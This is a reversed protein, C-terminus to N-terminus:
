RTTAVSRLSQATLEALLRNGADNNHRNIYYRAIGGDRVAAAMEERTDLTQLGSGKACDLVRAIIEAEFRLTSARQWAHPTYKAVVLVSIGHRDKLQRLRDMLLCSVTLGQDHVQVVEMPRGRLWWEVGLRRMTVDVLFSHGLLWRAPDLPQMAATPPPVPVNRLVLEEGRLDFYPKDIGWLVRMETRRVDDAIFSVILDSPRFSPVLKEARLVIQDIGYGLVGGNLVPRNLLAELHAPFTEGDAVEEGMAYSNGVVLLPRVDASPRPADSGHMRLGNEDFSLLARGGHDTGSYGPQPVYGLEPDPRFIRWRGETVAADELFNGWRWRREDTGFTRVALELVVFGVVLSALVLSTGILAERLRPLRDSADHSPHAIRM